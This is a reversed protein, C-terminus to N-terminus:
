DKETQGNDQQKNDQVPLNLKHHRMRIQKDQMQTAPQTNGHSQCVQMIRAINIAMLLLLITCFIAMFIKTRQEAFQQVMAAFKDIKLKQAFRRGANVEKEYRDKYKPDEKDPMPEGLIMKKWSM